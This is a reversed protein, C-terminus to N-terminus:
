RRNREHMYKEICEIIKNKSFPKAIFGQVNNQRAQLVDKEYNNATVMVIYSEPDHKKLFAAIEHGDVDPLEIDLFTVCPPQEAYLAIADKANTASSCVYHRRLMGELLRRSFDQDEVVLVTPISLAKREASYKKIQALQEKSFCLIGEASLSEATAHAGAPAIDEMKNRLM